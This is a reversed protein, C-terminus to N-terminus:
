SGAVLKIVILEDKRYLIISKILVFPNASYIRQGRLVEILHM